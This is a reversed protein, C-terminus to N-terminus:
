FEDAMERGPGSLRASPRNLFTGPGLYFSDLVTGLSDPFAGAPKYGFAIAVDYVRQIYNETLIIANFGEGPKIVDPVAIGYIRAEAAAILATAAAALSLKM